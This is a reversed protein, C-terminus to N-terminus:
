SHVQRMRSTNVLIRLVYEFPIDLMLREKNPDGLRKYLECHVWNAFAIQDDRRTLNKYNRDRKFITLGGFDIWVEQKAKASRYRMAKEMDDSGDLSSDITKVYIDRDTRASKDETKVNDDDMREAGDPVQM